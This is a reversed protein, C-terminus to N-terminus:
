RRRVDDDLDREASGLLGRGPRPHDRHRGLNAFIRRVKGLGALSKYSFLILPVILLPLLILWFPRAVTLSRTLNGLLNMM